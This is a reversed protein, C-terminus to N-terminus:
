EFILHRARRGEASSADAPMLMPATSALMGVVGEVVSRGGGGRQGAANPVGEPGESPRLCQRWM